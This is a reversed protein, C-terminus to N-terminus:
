SVRKSREPQCLQQLSETQLTFSASVTSLYREGVLFKPIDTQGNTLKNLERMMRGICKLYRQALSVDGILEGFYKHKYTKGSERTEKHPKFHFLRQNRTYVLDKFTQFPARDTRFTTKSGLLLPLMLWKTEHGLSEDRELIRKTEDHRIFEQNIFSELCLASFVISTAVNQKRRFEDAESKASELADFAIWYYLADPHPDMRGTSMSGGNPGDSAQMARAGYRLAGCSGLLSAIPREPRIYQQAAAHLVRMDRRDNPWVRKASAHLPASTLFGCGGSRM